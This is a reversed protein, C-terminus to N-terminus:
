AEDKDRDFAEPLVDVNGFLRICADVAAEDFKVGRGARIEKIAEAVGLAPRYPRHSSMAELVDAVSLIKAEILIQDGTLGRPYGSGDICEHHQWIIDAIPWPFRVSKIIEYGTTAHTQILAFEQPSLMSPKSLIEAPIAIKGLDHVLAALYVGEVRDTPLHMDEALAKAIKAVRTQHGATYPDRKEIALSMVTIVGVLSEHLDATRREVLDELHRQYQRNEEELRAKEDRLTKLSAAAAVVRRLVRGSVPKSLYDFVGAHLAEAATELTPEGTMLIVMAQSSARFTPLLDVGSRGPLIIDSVIVDFEKEALLREVEGADQATDVTCGDALLFDAASIRISEEDDVILVRTM